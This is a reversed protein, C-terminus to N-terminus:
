VSSGSPDADAARETASPPSEMPVGAADAQVAAGAASVVAAAAAVVSAAAEGDAELVAAAATVVADAARAQVAQVGSSLTGNVTFADGSSPATGDPGALMALPADSAQPADADEV